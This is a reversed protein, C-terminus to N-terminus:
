GHVSYNVQVSWQIKTSRWTSSLCSNCHFRKEVKQKGKKVIQWKGTTFIASKWFGGCKQAHDGVCAANCQEDPLKNYKGYSDGCRCLYGYQVGAYAHGAELCATRCSDPTLNSVSVIKSLDREPSKDEYCGVYGLSPFLRFNFYPVNFVTQLMFVVANTRLHLLGHLRIHVTIVNWLYQIPGALITSIWLYMCRASM